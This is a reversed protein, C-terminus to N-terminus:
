RFAIRATACAGNASRAREMHGPFAEWPASDHESLATLELGQDFLATVVEGLGHNWQHTVNQSFQATTEVYTGANAVVTPEPREFYPDEVVLRGDPGVEALTFFMPHAERLFLTGGKRLLSAVVEAWRRIDPLWCLAGIGTFVSDFQERGLVDAALYVDAGHFAVDARALSALRRAEVLAAPSFDLGCM